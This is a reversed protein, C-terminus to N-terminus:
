NINIVYLGGNNNLVAAKEGLPSIVTNDATETINQPSAMESRGSGALKILQNDLTLFFRQATTNAYLINVLHNSGAVPYTHLTEGTKSNVVQISSMVGEKELHFNHLLLLYSGYQPWFPFVDQESATNLTVIADNFDNGDVIIIKDFVYQQYSAFFSFDAGDSSWQPYALWNYGYVGPKIIQQKEGDRNIVVIQGQENTYAIMKGEPSVAASDFFEPLQVKATIAATQPNFILIQGSSNVAVEGTQLLQMAGPMAETSCLKTFSFDATHLLFFSIKPLHNGENDTEAQLPESVLILLREKDLWCMSNIYYNEQQLFSLDFLETAPEGSIKEPLVSYRAVEPPAANEKECGTCLVMSFLALAVASRCLAKM